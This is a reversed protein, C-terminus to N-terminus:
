CGSGSWEGRRGHTVGWASALAQGLPSTWSAASGPVVYGRAVVDARAASFMRWFTSPYMQMWGGVGSGQSNPVWRGHGGESASCSLLWSSTGPYPRQVERVARLWAHSDPFVEFDSLQRESLDLQCQTRRVHWVNVLYRVYLRSNSQREGFNSRYLPRRLARQCTWTARRHTSVLVRLTSLRTQTRAVRQPKVAQKVNPGPVTRAAASSPLVLVLLVALATLKLPV